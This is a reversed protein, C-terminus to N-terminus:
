SMCISCSASCLKGAIGTALDYASMSRGSAAFDFLEAAFRPAHEFVYPEM